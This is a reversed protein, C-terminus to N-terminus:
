NNLLPHEIIEKLPIDSMMEPNDFDLRGSNIEPINEVNNVPHSPWAVLHYHDDDPDNINTRDFSYFGLILERRGITAFLMGSCNM